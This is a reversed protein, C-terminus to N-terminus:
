FLRYHRRRARPPGLVEGLIVARQLENKPLAGAPFIPRPPAKATPAELPKEPFLAPRAEKKPTPPVRAPAAEKVRTRRPRRPPREREIIIEPREEVVLGELVKRLEDMLSPGEGKAEGGERRREIGRKFFWKVITGLFLLLLLLAWIIVDLEREM